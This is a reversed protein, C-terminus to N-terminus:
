YCSPRRLTAKRIGAWPMSDTPKKAQSLSRSSTARVDGEFLDLVEIDSQNLGRVVTGRVRSEDETLDRGMVARGLDARVVGPYDVSAVHHRTHDQPHTLRVDSLEWMGRIPRVPLIAPRVDLDSSDRGIVRSLIKANM